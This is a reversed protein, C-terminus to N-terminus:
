KSCNSCVGQIELQHTLTTFGYREAIETIDKEIHTDGEISVLKGCTTCTIHHHHDHFSDSLELKYKWGIHLRQVVGLKEYLEITRYVSARDVTGDLKTVLETMTMPEQHLLADFVALRPKSTSFGGLKLQQHLRSHISDMNCITAFNRCLQLLYM